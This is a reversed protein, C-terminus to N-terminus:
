DVDQPQISQLIDSVEIAAGEQETAMAIAKYTRLYAELLNGSSRHAIEYAIAMAAVKPDQTAPVIQDAM